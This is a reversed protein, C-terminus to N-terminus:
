NGISRRIEALEDRIRAADEFREERVAQEIGLELDEMRAILSQMALSREPVKGRHQVDRHMERLMPLVIPSFREYCKPCGFSGQKKFDKVTFGCAECTMSEIDPKAAGAAALSSALDNASYGEPDTVGKERACDDCLDIKTIKNGSIQTLHVTAPKGCIQCKPSDSM